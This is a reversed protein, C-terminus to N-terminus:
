IENIYGRYFRFLTTADGFNVREGSKSVIAAKLYVGRLAYTGRYARFTQTADGFDITGSGNVDGIVIIVYRMNGNNIKYGTGIVNTTSTVDVDDGDYIKYGDTVHLLNNIFEEKTFTKSKLSSVFITGAKGNEPQTIEYTLSDLQESVKLTFTKSIEKNGVTITTEGSSNVKITKNDFTAISEDSSKFVLNKDTANDPTTILDFELEDGPDLTLESEIDQHNLIISFDTIKIYELVNKTISAYPLGRICLAFEVDGNTIEDSKFKFSEFTGNQYEEISLEKVLKLKNFIKISYEDKIPSTSTFKFNGNVGIYDYLDDKNNVRTQTTITSKSDVNVYYLTDDITLELKNSINELGLNNPDYSAPLIFEIFYSGVRAKYPMINIRYNSPNEGKVVEFSNTINDSEINSYVINDYIDYIRIKMKGIEESTLNSTDLNFNYYQGENEAIIPTTSPTMDKLTIEKYDGYMIVDVSNVDDRNTSPDTYTLTVKYTGFDITHLEPDFTLKVIGLNSKDIIFKDTVDNDENDTVKVYLNSIDIEYNSTYNVNYTGGTNKHILNDKTNSEITVDNITIRREFNGVTFEQRKQLTFTEKTAIFTATYSGPYIPNENGYRLIVKFNNMDSTDQYTIEFYDNLNEIIESHNITLNDIFSRKIERDTFVDGTMLEDTSIDFTITGGHEYNPVAPTPDYTVNTIMYNFYTANFKLIAHDEVTEEDITKHVMVLYDKAEIAKDKDYTIELVHDKYFKELNIEFLHNYNITQDNNSIDITVDEYRSGIISVPINITSSKNVFLDNSMGNKVPTNIEVEGLDISLYENRVRFRYIDFDTQNYYVVLQYSGIKLKLEPALNEKLKLVIKENTHTIVDFRDNYNIMDENPNCVNGSCEQTITFKANELHPTVLDVAIEPKANNYFGTVPITKGESEVEGSINVNSIEWKFLERINPMEVEYRVGSLTVIMLFRKEDSLEYIREVKDVALNVKMDGYYNVRDIVDTDKWKMDITFYRTDANESSVDVYTSGDWMEISYSIEDSVLRSGIIYSSEMNRTIYMEDPTSIAKDKISKFEKQPENVAFKFTTEVNEGGTEHYRISLVYNGLASKPIDTGVYNSFRMLYLSEDQDIVDLTYSYKFDVVSNDRFSRFEKRDSNWPEISGSTKHLLEFELNEPHDVSYLHIPIAIDYRQNSYFNTFKVNGESTLRVVEDPNVQISYYNAKISFEKIVPTMDVGNNSYNFVIRYDGKKTVGPITTLLMSSDTLGRNNYNDGTISASPHLQSNINFYNDANIWAGKNNKYEIRYSLNDLNYIYNLKMNFNLSSEVNAYVISMDNVTNEAIADDISITYNAKNYNISTMHINRNYLEPYIAPEFASDISDDTYIFGIAEANDHSVYVYYEGPTVETKPLVTLTKKSLKEQEEEDNTNIKASKKVFFLDTVNHSELTSTTDINVKRRGSVAGLIYYGNKDYGFKTLILKYMDANARKFATDMLVTHAGGSADKYDLTMDTADSTLAYNRVPHIPFNDSIIYGNADLNYNTLKTAGATYDKFLEYAEAYTTKFENITLVQNNVYSEGNDVSLDFYVKGDYIRNVKTIYEVEDYFYYNGNTDKDARKDLIIYNISDLNVNYYDTRSKKLYLGINYDFKENAGPNAGTLEEGNIGKPDVESFITYDTNGDELSFSAENNYNGFGYQLKYEGIYSANNDKYKTLIYVYGTNLKTTDIILEFNPDYIANGETDVLTRNDSRKILKAKFNQLESDIYGSFKLATKIEGGTVALPKKDPMITIHKIVKDKGTKHVKISGDSGYIYSTSTLKEYASPNEAQFDAVSKTVTTSSSLGEYYTVTPTSSSHTYNTIFVTDSYNVIVPYVELALTADYYHFRSDTNITSLQINPYIQRMEAESYTVRNTGSSLHEDLVYITIGRNNAVGIIDVDFASNTYDIQYRATSGAAPDEAMTARKQSISFSQSKSFGNIDSYESQNKLTFTVSYNGERTYSNENLIEWKLNSSNFGINMPKNRVILTGNQISVDFYNTADQNNKKITYNFDSISLSSPIQNNISFHWEGQENAAVNSITEFKGVNFNFENKEVKFEKTGKTVGDLTVEIVYNGCVTANKRSFHISAKGNSLGNKTVNFDEEANNGNKKITIKLRSAGENPLNSTSVNLTGEYNNNRYFTSPNKTINGVNVSVPLEAIGSLSIYGKDTGHSAYAWDGTICLVNVTQGKQITKIITSSTSPSTRLNFNGTTKYAVAPGSSCAYLVDNEVAVAGKTKDIKSISIGIALIIMSFILTLSLLAYKSKKM